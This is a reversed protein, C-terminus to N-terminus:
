HIAMGSAYFFLQQKETVLELGVRQLGMSWLLAQGRQGEGDGPAQGLERGNFRHHWGVTENEAM